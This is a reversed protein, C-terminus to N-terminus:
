RSAVDTRMEIIVGPIQPLGSKHRALAASKVAEEDVIWFDDPIKEPDVIVAIPVKKVSLMSGAETKITNDTVKVAELKKVATEPKFYGSEVKKAIDIEEKKVRKEEALFWEAYKEKLTREADECEQILPNYTARAEKVIASAPMLIKDRKQEIAKSLLKINKVKDSVEAATKEDVVKTADVMAKMGKIKEKYLVLETEKVEVKKTDKKM